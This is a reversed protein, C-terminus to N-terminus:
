SQFETSEGGNRPIAIYFWDEGEFGYRDNAKRGDSSMLEADNYGGRIADGDRVVCVFVSSGKDDLAAGSYFGPWNLKEALQMAAFAHRQGHHLEHPYAVSISIGSASTAKIRSGRAGSAGMFKTRIAQRM